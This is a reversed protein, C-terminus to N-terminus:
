AFCGFINELCTRNITREHGKLPLLRATILFSWRYTARIRQPKGKSSLTKDRFLQEPPGAFGKPIHDCYVSDTVPRADKDKLFEIVKMLFANKKGNGYETFVASTRNRFLVPQGAEPKGPIVREPEDPIDFHVVKIAKAKNNIILLIAPKQQNYLRNIVLINSDKDMM